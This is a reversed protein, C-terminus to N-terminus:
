VVKSYTLTDSPVAAESCGHSKDHSKGVPENEKDDEYPSRQQNQKRDMNKAAVVQENVM